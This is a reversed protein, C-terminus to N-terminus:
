ESEFGDTIGEDLPEPHIGLVYSFMLGLLQAWTFLHQTGKKDVKHNYCDKCFIYLGKENYRFLLTRYPNRQCRVDKM